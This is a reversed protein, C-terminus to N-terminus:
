RSLLWRREQEEWQSPLDALMKALNTKLGCGSLAADQLRPALHVLRIIRSVRGLDMGEQEAIQRLGACRGEDLLRQWHHALGLARLLPTDETLKSRGAQRAFAQPQGLPTIIQTRAGRRVMKWPVFTEMNVGGAPAPLDRTTPAGLTVGRHRRSM